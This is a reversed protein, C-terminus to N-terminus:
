AKKQDYGVFFDHLIPYGACNDNKSFNARDSPDSSYNKSETMGDVYKKQSSLKLCHYINGDLDDEHLYKCQNETGVKCVDLVHLHTLPM